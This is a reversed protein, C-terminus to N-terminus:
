SFYRCIPMFVSYTYLSPMAALGRSCWRTCWRAVFPSRGDSKSGPRAHKALLPFLHRSNHRHQFARADRLRDQPQREQQSAAHRVHPTSRSLTGAAARGAKVAAQKFRHTTVNRRDLPEGTESAFVLGNERWWSGARDIEGLQRELHSRLAEAVGQTLMVTRRSSKTKPATLQPGDKATALTRRVRLTRDELNLDEWKLGLLEGQRLGTTVALVYLAELRDGAAAELLKKVQEPGLLRMEERRVQPPKVAETANRPILGDMVAQKLAKHLTVHVYQVTRPSLGADLKERYLGRVHAPTLDKLKLKGLVPCIHLRVMQEYREFTTSRVTDRVSDLIWRELYEGVKMNDADFVLGKNRNSLADILKEHAEERTKGYVTKRKKGTPMEVTYRAMYLGSKKHRTIGGEGNGRKGMM